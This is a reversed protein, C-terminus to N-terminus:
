GDGSLGRVGRVEEAVGYRGAGELGEDLGYGANENQNWFIFICINGVDKLQQVMKYATMFAMLLCFIHWGLVM